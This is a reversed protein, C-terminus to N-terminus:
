DIIGVRKGFNIAEISNSSKTKELIRQRHTNVTHVSINLQDSIEKSLLGKDLLSLVQSERKTLKVKDIIEKENILFSNNSKLDLVRSLAPRDLNQNPSIDLTSISLWVNGYRDEELMKHQEIVRIWKENLDIIRFENILKVYKRDEKKLAVSYKLMEIGSRLLQVLDEPHIRSNFYEATIPQPVDSGFLRIFNYSAFLHDKTYLDFVSVASSEIRSIEELLPIQKEFREYDEKTPSPTMQDLLRSYELQLQDIETHM